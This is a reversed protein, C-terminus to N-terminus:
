CFCHEQNARPLVSSCHPSQLHLKCCNEQKKLLYSGAYNERKERNGRSQKKNQNAEPGTSFGTWRLLSFSVTNRGISKSNEKWLQQWLAYNFKM